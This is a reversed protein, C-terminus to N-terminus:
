SNSYILDKIAEKFGPFRFTFGEQIAKVPMVWQSGYISEALEGVVLRMALQPVPIKVSFPGRLEALINAFEKQTVPGPSAANYIGKAGDSSILWCFLEALDGIHIWSYIQRGSGFVPALGLRSPLLFRKLIGDETSLVLGIRIIAQRVEKKLAGTAEEWDRCLDVLFGPKGSASSENLIEGPRHGYIGIGSVSIFVKPPNTLANIEEVIFRTTDIRSQYIRTKVAPTWRHNAISEGSLQILGYIGNLAGPDLYRKLPDWLFQEYDTSGSKKRTILRVQYGKDMLTKAIAKGLLGSGGCIAIIKM